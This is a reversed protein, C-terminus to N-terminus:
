VSADESAKLQRRLDDFKSSVSAQAKKDAERQFLLKDAALQKQADKEAKECEAALRRDYETKMSKKWAKAETDYQHRVSEEIQGTLAKTLPFRHGCKPCVVRPEPM